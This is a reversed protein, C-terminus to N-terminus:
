EYFIPCFFIWHDLNSYLNEVYHQFHSSTLKTKSLYSRNGHLHSKNKAGGSVNSLTCKRSLTSVVWLRIKCHNKKVTQSNFPIFLSHGNIKILVEKIYYKILLKLLNSIENTDNSNKDM